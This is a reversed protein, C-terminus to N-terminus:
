FWTEWLDYSESNNERTNHICHKDYGRNGNLEVFLNEKIGSATLLTEALDPKNNCMISCVATHLGTNLNPKCNEWFGHPLIHNM